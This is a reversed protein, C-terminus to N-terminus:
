FGEILPDVALGSFGSFIVVCSILSRKIEAMMSDTFSPPAKPAGEPCIYAAKEDM